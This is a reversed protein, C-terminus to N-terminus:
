VGMKILIGIGILSRIQLRPSNHNPGFVRADDDYIMDVSWTATIIKGLKATFLNTMYFDVNAPNHEYNSFLDMRGTYSITKNLNSRLMITGFAGV